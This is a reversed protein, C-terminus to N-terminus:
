TVVRILIDSLEANQLVKKRINGSINKVFILGPRAKSKYIKDCKGAGAQV